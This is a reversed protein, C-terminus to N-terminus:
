FPNWSSGRSHVDSRLASALIVQARAAGFQQASTIYPVISLGYSLGGVAIAAAGGSIGVLSHEFARGPALNVAGGALGKVATM